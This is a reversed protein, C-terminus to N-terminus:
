NRDVFRDTQFKQVSSACKMVQKRFPGLDIERSEPPRENQRKTLKPGNQSKKKRDLPNMTSSM